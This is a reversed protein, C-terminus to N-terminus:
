YIDIMNATTPRSEEKRGELCHKFLVMESYMLQGHIFHLFYFRMWGHITKLSSARVQSQQCIIKGFGLCFFFSVGTVARRGETIGQAAKKFLGHFINNYGCNCLFWSCEPYGTLCFPLATRTICWGSSKDPDRQLLVSGGMLEVSFWLDHIYGISWKGQDANIISVNHLPFFHM